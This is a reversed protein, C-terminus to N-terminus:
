VAIIDRRGVDFSEQGENKFHFFIIHGHCRTKTVFSDIVHM